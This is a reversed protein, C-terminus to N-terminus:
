AQAPGRRGIVYIDKIKSEALADLAHEAIDTHKLEDVTKSLIRAVDAAVNGQGIIVAVENSLDFQRERYDPHGNYWAVFETATYSGALDEGPIGLKRDSEAGCTFIIAHHSDRLEDVSIDKGVTVNAILNFEPSQAIKDYLLIAQKLKPHDPAVGSRVLGYPSPLRELMDVEVAIDSKILSEAAYFGSPGSGVIAVRLPNSENGLQAM